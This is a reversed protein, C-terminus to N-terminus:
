SAPFHGSSTVCEECEAVQNNEYGECAIRYLCISVISCAALIFVSSISWVFKHCTFLAPRNHNCEFVIGPVLASAM